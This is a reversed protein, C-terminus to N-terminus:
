AHRPESDLSHKDLYEVALPVVRERGLVQALPDPRVKIRVLDLPTVVASDSSRHALDSRLSRFDLPNIALSEAPSDNEEPVVLHHRVRHRSQFGIPELPIAAWSQVPGAVLSGQAVCEVVFTVTLEDTRAARPPPLDFDKECSSPLRSGCRPPRLRDTPRRACPEGCALPRTGSLRLMTLLLVALVPAISLTKVL